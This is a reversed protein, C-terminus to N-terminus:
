DMGNKGGGIQILNDDIEVLVPQMMLFRMVEKKSFYPVDNIKTAAPYERLQEVAADYSILRM